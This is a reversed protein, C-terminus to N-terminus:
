YLGFYKDVEWSTVQVAYEAWEKEKIKIYKEFLYDGFNARMLKSQKLYELAEWLSRPLTEIDRQVLSQTDFEYVNEEVPSPEKLKKEIGDWGSTFLAAIALYPNGSPDSSRYELRSSQPRGSSVKPIRILASRNMRGWCIYVPAEFGSVLRKYSNVLPSIIASIEKAHALQGALFQYAKKSLWFKDASNHFINTKGQFISQHLHMGNGPRGFLPKPLFSAYLGHREAVKKIIMKATIINDATKLAEDYVLDIEHQGTGVEHHCSETHIGLQELVRSIEKRLNAAEDGGFDFYGVSDNPILHDSNNKKFLYFELEAGVFYSFNADALKSLLRKLIFRPDGAFSVNKPTFIDCIVRATLLNDSKESSLNHIETPLVTFTNLDPKLYMDSECVRGFGEVSSGDFWIGHKVAKSFGQVPITVNKLSGLIDCFWLDIFRVRKQKIQKYIQEATM